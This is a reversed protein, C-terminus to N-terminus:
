DMFCWNKLSHPKTKSQDSGMSFTFSAISAAMKLSFFFSCVVNAYLKLPNMSVPNLFKIHEM